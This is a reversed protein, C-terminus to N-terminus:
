ASSSGASKPRKRHRPDLRRAARRLTSSLSKPLLWVLSSVLVAGYASPGARTSWCGRFGVAVKTSIWAWRRRKRLQHDGIRYRVLPEELNCARLGHAICRFWLDYDELYRLSGDYSGVQNLASRRVLVSSHIIPNAWLLRRIDEHRHPMARVRLPTGESDIETAWSGLLDIDPNADMFQAQRAIRTSEMEDDADLRAIYRGRCLSVGLRASTSRGLNVEHRFTRVRSDRVAVESLYERSGDTSADDVVILELDTYSQTLVSEISSRLHDIGNYVTMLVSVVPQDDPM